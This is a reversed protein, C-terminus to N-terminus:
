QEEILYGEKVLQDHVNVLLVEVNLEILLDEYGNEIEKMRKFLKDMKEPKDLIPDFEELQKVIQNAEKQLALRRANYKDDDYM